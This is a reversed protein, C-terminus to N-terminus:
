KIGCTKLIEVAEDFGHAVVAEVDEFVNLENIWSQQEPSVKGGKSRKMEIFLLGKPTIIIYDPVGPNVGMRKNKMKIGWSRTFTEQALHSFLVEKLTLYNALMVCEEYETPIPLKSKTM